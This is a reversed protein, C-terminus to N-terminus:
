KAVKAGCTFDMQASYAIFKPEDSPDKVCLKENIPKKAKKAEEIRYATKLFTKTLGERIRQVVEKDKDVDGAEYGKSCMEDKFLSKIDAKKNVSLLYSSALVGTRDEGTTCHFFIKKNNKLALKLLDIGQIIKACGSSFNQNDKWDFNIHTVDNKKFGLEALGGLESKVEGAKDNKFIIVESIGFKKMLELNFHNLPASGRIIAGGTKNRAVYSSNAIPLGKVDSEKPSIHLTKMCSRADKIVGSNEFLDHDTFGLTIHPYFHLPDFRSGGRKKYLEAVKKRINLLNESEVVIFYNELFKGGDIATGKGMCVPKYVSKQIDSKEAIENIEQITVFKSLDDKFEPPTIVTIHAEGRSQVPRYTFHDVKDVFEKFPGYNLTMSLYPEAGEHKVFSNTLTKEVSLNKINWDEHAWALFPFSFALVLVFLKKTSGNMYTKM